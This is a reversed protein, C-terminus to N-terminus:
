IDALKLSTPDLSMFAAVADPDFHKGSEALLYAQVKEDPWGSWYPRESRLPTGM